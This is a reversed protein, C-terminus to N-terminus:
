REELLVNLGQPLEVLYDVVTTAVYGACLDVQAYEVAM